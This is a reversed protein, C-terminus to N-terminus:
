AGSPYLIYVPWQACASGVPQAVQKLLNGKSSAPKLWRRGWGSINGFCRNTKGIQGGTVGPTYYGCCYLAAELHTVM